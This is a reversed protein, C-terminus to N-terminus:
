SGSGARRRRTIADVSAAILLVGGTIVYTGGRRWAPVAAGQDELPVSTWEPVWRRGQRLAVAPTAQGSALETVLRDLATARDDAGPPLDTDVQRCTLLPAEAPLVRCVGTVLALGPNLLDGGIVDQAQATVVDLAVPQRREALAQGLALLHFFAQEQHELVEGGGLREGSSPGVGLGWAVVVRSPTLGATALADLVATYDERRAPDVTFSAGSDQGFAEGRRVSVVSAGADRLRASLGAGGGPDEFLLVRQGHAGGSRQAIPATRWGPVECWREIAREEAAAAPRPSPPADITKGAAAPRPAVWCRQREYPYTPLSTRGREPGGVTLWDIEAGRLWLTALATLSTKRDEDVGAAPAPPLTALPADYGPRLQARALDALTRGPGVELLTWGSEETLQALGSGFRVAGRLHRGYYEPDTAEEATIWRGTVNSLYPISPVQLPVQAVGAVFEEVVPDVMASHFAHSTRLERVLHGEGELVAALARVSSTPGSMVCARPGNVAALDLDAPLRAVLEDEPLLVALMSGEPLSGMLRGRAAVLGLADEVRLVGALCAAVYEGVSHGLMASPEVGWSRWMCALAYEVSFLAPQTVATRRLEEDAQAAGGDPPHLLSRLDLGLHTDLVSACLDLATRYAVDHEYAGRAMGAHQTGQGPFLFAVPPPGGPQGPPGRQIRGGDLLADAADPLSDAVVIARHEYRTRGEQLTYAVDGLDLKPHRLLHTALEEVQRQLASATRASLPLLHFASEPVRAPVAPPEAVIVHANTGGIGFASVGALRPGPGSPWEQSQRPLRFRSGELGLAPNVTEYLTPPVVGERLSRVTKILGAMGAAGSLHGINSKVSGVLCPQDGGGYVEHLAAMEVPDGLATATGHAELCRVQEPGVGAAALARRLVRAQGQSSPATYSHKGDGDNNVASGLIVADIEDRDALADPLRKLVVVGVGSGWITGRAGSDFPRCRGDPALVGGDRYLYGHGHPVTLHAAGALAIDCDGARLSACAVHLAVLSTSCATQVTLSPGRLGLHYSTFTAAFDPENAIGIGMDGMNAVTAPDLTLVKTAYDNSGSGVFVGVDGLYRRPDYGADELATRSAELLLRHQPDQEQATRQTLGFLPADLADHDELFSTVPVFAPHHATDHPVGAAVQEAVSSSRVMDRGELLASWFSEVDAAGPFRGSMGIVAIPAQVRTQSQADPRVTM